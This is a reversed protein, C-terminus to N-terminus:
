NLRYLDNDIFAQFVDQDVIAGKHQIVLAASASALKIADNSNTGATRAGVFVGNFSDGASTTDVVNEVPTIAIDTRKNDKIYVVGQEGNKIVLEDFTYAESFTIVEEATNLQYLQKFDDVGPLAINSLTFAQHYEQKAEDPSSWMRARYNPDFIITVGASKLKEVMKWFKPRDEPTIVALSIGSFFFVDGQSMKEIEASDISKMVQRAASNERWYTFTREGESDTKISYLGAIKDNSRYVFDTEINQQQFYEVMNSSFEDTGVATVINVKMDAFVRKLYVATNFVDGAFSQKLTQPLQANPSVNLLEVMSEGFLFINKM